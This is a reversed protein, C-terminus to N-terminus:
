NNIIHIRADASLYASGETIVKDGAKLGSALMAKDNRLFAIRVPIKKAKDGDAVFVFANLGNGEVIADVPVSVYSSGQAGELRVTAFMGYSFRKGGPNFSFEVPYLGTAPDASQPIQSLTGTFTQGPYADFTIQARQGNRLRVFDKDTVGARVVWDGAGAHMVYVPTGPGAVEGENMLKMLIVGSIPARIESYAQNFQVISLQEKALNLATTANQVQELTAVSDKYLNQARKLDREAKAVGERAQTVGANIETLNLRALLQGKKVQAGEEAFLQDIVGGTKFSLRAETASSVLGSATVPESLTQMEAAVVRVAIEEQKAPLPTNEEANSHNGCMTILFLLGVAILPVIISVLKKM